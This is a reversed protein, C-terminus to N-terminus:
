CFFRMADTGFGPLIIKENNENVLKMQKEAMQINDCQIPHNENMNYISLYSTSNDFTKFSIGRWVGKNKANILSGNENITHDDSLFKYDTLDISQKISKSEFFHFLGM